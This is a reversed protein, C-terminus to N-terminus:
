AGLMRRIARAPASRALVGRMTEPPPWRVSPENITPGHIPGLRVVDLDPVSDGHDLNQALLDEVTEVPEWNRDEANPRCDLVAEILRRTPEAPLAIPRWGGGWAQNGCRVCWGLPMDLWVICGPAPLRSTLAGCSCGAIWVGHNVRAVMPDATRAVQEMSPIAAEPYCALLYSRPTRTPAILSQEAVMRGDLIM